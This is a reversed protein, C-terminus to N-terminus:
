SNGIWSYLNQGPDAMSDLVILLILFCTRYPIMLLRHWIIRIGERSYAAFQTVCSLSGPALHGENCTLSECHTNDSLPGHIIFLTPLLQLSLFGPLCIRPVYGPLGMTLFVRVVCMIMFVWLSFCESLM